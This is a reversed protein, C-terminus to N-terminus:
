LQPVDKGAASWIAKTFVGSDYHGDSPNFFTGGGAGTLVISLTKYDTTNTIVTANAKLVIAGGFHFNNGKGDAYFIAYDALTETVNEVTNTSSTTTTQVAKGSVATTYSTNTLSFRYSADTANSSVNLVLNGTKDLVVFGESGGLSYALQAGSPFSTGFESALLTLINQTDIKVPQATYTSTIINGVNNTKMVPSNTPSFLGVIAFSSVLGNTSSAAQIRGGAFVALGIATVAAFLTVNKNM